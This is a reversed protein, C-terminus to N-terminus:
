VKWRIELTPANPKPTFRADVKQGLIGAVREEADCLVIRGERLSLATSQDNFYAGLKRKKPKGDKNPLYLYDGHKRVRLCLPWSIKNADFHMVDRTYVSKMRKGDRLRLSILGQASLDIETGDKHILIPNTIDSLNKSLVLHRHDILLRADPGELVAGYSSKDMMKQLSEIQKATYGYHKLWASLLIYRHEHTKIWSLNLWEQGHHIEIKKAILQKAYEETFASWKLLKESQRALGNFWRPHRERLSPLIEHRLHNRDYELSSNSIDERWSLGHQKAYALLDARPIHLLPRCHNGEIAAMGALGKITSGGFLKLLMTEAQDDLHHATAIWDAKHDGAVEQFFNYRIQRAVDQFNGSSKLEKGNVERLVFPFDYSKALQEVFQADQKSDKGRMAYNVHAVICPINQKYLAHLLVCSDMGGSVGLVVDQDSPFRSKITSHIANM